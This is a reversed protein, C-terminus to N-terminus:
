WANSWYTSELIQPEHTPRLEITFHSSSRLGIFFDNLAAELEHQCRIADGTESAYWRLDQEHTGHKRLLDRLIALKIDAPLIVASGQNRKSCASELSELVANSGDSCRFFVSLGRLTTLVTTNALLMACHESDASTEPDCICKPPMKSCRSHKYLDAQALMFIKAMAESHVAPPVTHNGRGFLDATAWSSRESMWAFAEDKLRKQMPREGSNTAMNVDLPSQALYGTVERVFQNVIGLEQQYITSIAKVSMLQHADGTCFQMYEAETQPQPSLAASM